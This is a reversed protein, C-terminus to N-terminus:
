ENDINVIKQRSAHGHTICIKSQSVSFYDALIKILADNVKGKIPLENVWVDFHCEDIKGVKAEKSNPKVKVFIKM